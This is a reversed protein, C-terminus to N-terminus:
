ILGAKKLVKLKKALELTEKDIGREELTGAPVSSQEQQQPQLQLQQEQRQRRLMDFYFSLANYITQMAQKPDGLQSVIYELLTYCDECITPMRLDARNVKRHCVMCEGYSVLNQAYQPTPPQELFEIDGRARARELDAMRQEVYYKTVNVTWQHVLASQLCADIEVPDMLKM